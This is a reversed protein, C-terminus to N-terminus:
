YYIGCLRSVDSVTSADASSAKRRIVKPALRIRAQSITVDNGGSRLKGQVPDLDTKRMVVFGVSTADTM